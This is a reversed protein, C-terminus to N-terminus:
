PRESGTTSRTRRVIVCGDAQMAGAFGAPVVITTERETVVAPGTIGDGAGLRDREHVAAETMAGSAPDFLRRRGSAPAPRGGGADAVRTVEPTPTASRVAWSTVEVDLGDVIRGFLARYGAEFRDLFDGALPAAAEAAGFPVAIEWGQGVDRM